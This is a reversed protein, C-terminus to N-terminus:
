TTKKKNFFCTEVKLVTEKAASLRDWGYHQALPEVRRDWEEETAADQLAHAMSLKRSSGWHLEEEFESQIVGHNFNHQFLLERWSWNVARHFRKCFHSLPSVEALAAMKHRLRHYKRARAVPFRM